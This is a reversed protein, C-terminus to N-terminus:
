FTVVDAPAMPGPCKLAAEFRGRASAGSKYRVEITGRLTNGSYHVANRVATMGAAPVAEAILSDGYVSVVRLPIPGQNAFTLTWGEASDTATLVLSVVASDRAGFFAKGVWRGAFGPPPLRNPAYSPQIRAAEAATLGNSYLWAILEPDRELD